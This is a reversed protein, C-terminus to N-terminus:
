LDDLIQRRKKAYEGATILGDRHLVELERLRDAASRSTPSFPAARARWGFKRGCHTCLARIQGAEFQAALKPNAFSMDRSGQGFVAQLRDVLGPLPLCKQSGCHPCSITM